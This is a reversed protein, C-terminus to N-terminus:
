YNNNKIKDKFQDFLEKYKSEMRMTITHYVAFNILKSLTINNKKSIERLKDRLNQNFNFTFPVSKSAIVTEEYLKGLAEYYESETNFDERKLDHKM